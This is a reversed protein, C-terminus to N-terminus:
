CGSPPSVGSSIAVASGNAMAQMPDIAGAIPMTADAVCASPSPIVPAPVLIQPSLGPAGVETMAAPTTADTYTSGNITALGPLTVSTSTGLDELITNTSASPDCGGTLASAGFAPTAPLTLGPPTTAPAAGTFPDATSGNFPLAATASSTTCPVVRGLRGGTLGGLTATGITGLAPRALVSPAAQQAWGANAGCVVLAATIIALSRM